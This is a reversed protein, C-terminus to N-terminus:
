KIMASIQVIMNM